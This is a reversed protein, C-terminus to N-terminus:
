EAPRNGVSYFMYFVSEPCSYLMFFYLHFLYLIQRMKFWCSPISCCICM